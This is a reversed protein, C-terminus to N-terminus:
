RRYFTRLAEPRIASKGQASRAIGMLWCGEAVSITRLMLRRWM